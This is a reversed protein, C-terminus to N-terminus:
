AAFFARAEALGIHARESQESFEGRFIQFYPIAVAAREAIAHAVDAGIDIADFFALRQEVGLADCGPDLKMDLLPWHQHRAIKRDANDGTDSAIHPVPGDLADAFGPVGARHWAPQPM